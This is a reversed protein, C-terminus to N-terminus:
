CQRHSRSVRLNSDFTAHLPCFSRKGLLIPYDEAELWLSRCRVWKWSNERELRTVEEMYRKKQPGKGTVIALLKPLLHGSGSQSGDDNAARAREEYQKLADLLIGFDEDPTWSTSSVLLAPRDSRLSPSAAEAFTPNILEANLSSAGKPPSEETFPTSRPPHFEPFFRSIYPSSFQPESKYLRNYLQLLLTDTFVTPTPLSSRVDHSEFIESRKFHAPPRDHLVITM